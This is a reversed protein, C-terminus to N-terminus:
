PTTSVSFILWLNSLQNFLSKRLKQIIVMESITENVKMFIELKMLLKGTARVETAYELVFMSRYSSPNGYKLIIFVISSLSQIAANTSANLQTYYALVPARENSGNYIQIVDNDHLKLASFKLLVYNYNDVTILWSCNSHRPYDSPIDFAPSKFQGSSGFMEHHCGSYCFYM